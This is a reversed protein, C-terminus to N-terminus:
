HNANKEHLLRQILGALEGVNQSMEVDGLNFAIGFETELDLILSIQTISDWDGVSQASTEPTLSVHRRFVQDFVIQMRLYIQTLDM